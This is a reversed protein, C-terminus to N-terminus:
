SSCPISAKPHGKESKYCDSFNMKKVTFVVQSRNKTTVNDYDISIHKNTFM